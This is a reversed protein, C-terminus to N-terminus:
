RVGYHLSIQAETKEAPGIDTGPLIRFIGGSDGPESVALCFIQRLHEIVMVLITDIKLLTTVESSIM